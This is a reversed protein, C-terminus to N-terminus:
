SSCACAPSASLHNAHCLVRCCVRQRGIRWSRAGSAISRAAFDARVRQISVSVRSLLRRRIMRHASPRRRSPLGCEPRLEDRRAPAAQALASAVVSQWPQILILSPKRTAAHPRTPWLTSISPPKPLEADQNCVKSSISLVPTRCPLLRVVTHLRALAPFSGLWPGLQTPFKTAVWPM